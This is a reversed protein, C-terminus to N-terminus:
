LFSRFFLFILLGFSCCSTELLDFTAMCDSATLETKHIFRLLDLGLSEFFYPVLSIFFDFPHILKKRFYVLSDINNLLLSIKKM